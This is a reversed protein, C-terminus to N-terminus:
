RSFFSILTGIAIAPAYPMKRKLPNSITLDAVKEKAGFVLDGTGQFLEGLFGGWAAWVLAFIGGVIGILVLAVFMQMPGIWAGIAACLKVDGMGMGGKLALIFFLGGGVAIGALSAGLGGWGTLWTQVAIGIVLFPLVVVNPIRRSRLDTVICIVLVVLTPALAPWWALPHALTSTGGLRFGCYPCNLGDYCSLYGQQSVVLTGFTLVKQPPLYGDAVDIHHFLM